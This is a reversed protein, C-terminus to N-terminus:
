ATASGGSNGTDAGSTGNIFAGLEDSSVSGDGNGDMQGFLQALGAGHHHHRHYSSLAAALQTAGSSAAVQGTAANTLTHTTTESVSASVMFGGNEFMTAHVSATATTGPPLSSGDGFVKSFLDEAAHTVTDLMGSMASGFGGSSSSSAAGVQAAFMGGAFKKFEGLSIQGDGDTDISKFLDSTNTASTAQGSATSQNMLSSFETQSISGDSDTDVQNFLAQMLEQLGGSKQSQQTQGTGCNGGCGGVSMSM